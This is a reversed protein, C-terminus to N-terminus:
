PAASVIVPARGSDQSLITTFEILMGDKLKGGSTYKLYFDADVEVYGGNRRVVKLAMETGAEAKAILDRVIEDSEYFRTSFTLNCALSVPQATEVPLATGSGRDTTETEAGGSKDVDVDVIHTCLTSATSGKTGKYLMREWGARSKGDPM